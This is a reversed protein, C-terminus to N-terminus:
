ALEKFTLLKDRYYKYQKQRAAIEAPLGTTLDNCLADFRDLIAVIHQQASISPICIDFKRIKEMPINKMSSSQLLRNIQTNWFFNSQFYYRLFEPLVVNSDVRILAVNPALYYRDEEDILAVQGVTGVYTFLMDGIHLKSRILRSLDSNDIYKVDQLNLKGNKVNLGRLAIISGEESYTVYKTFEFGALKTVVAIGGLTRWCYESAGGGLVDFSLLKDRYFEYQKKRATLEATLEATIEATLETFHDLIRVIEQQVPLPPVPIKFPSLIKLSLGGRAGDGNSIARLEEYRGDLYYYLFKYNLAPGCIIACLSQNTCLEIETIAVKGRTKGQGALAIVVSHIPVITTSTKDYGIQTIKLETEFIQKNNVEGSSMWPITGDEWFASNTKSPTAGTVLRCVEGIKHYEVGDPCLEAILKELTTM